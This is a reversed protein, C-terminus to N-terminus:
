QEKEKMEIEEYYECKNEIVNNRLVVYLEASTAARYPNAYLINIMGFTLISAIEWGVFSLDLVFTKWKNHKMMEKSLRFAKKRKIKPNEALIYPIMRYEYMKIPGGIITLYWLMNYINRLFMTLAVNFWNEKKFIDKAIDTIPTDEERAKLFYKRGAVILPDGIMIVFLLSILATISITVGLSAENINFSTIADWIKFIYKQSKTVSNVNAKVIGIVKKEAETLNEIGIKEEAESIKELIIEVKEQDVDEDTLVREQKVIYTPDLTDEGQLWGIISTGFEGTLLALLFCVVIVTWYNKKVAQRAKAKLEKRKWM